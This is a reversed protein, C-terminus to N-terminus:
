RGCEQTIAAIFCRQKNVTSGLKLMMKDMFNLWGDKTPWQHATVTM